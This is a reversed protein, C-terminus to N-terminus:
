KKKKFIFLDRATELLIRDKKSRKVDIGNWQQTSLPCSIHNIPTFGVDKFRIYYEPSLIPEERNTYDLYDSIIISVIGDKKVTQYSDSALKEVFGLFSDRDLASVSNDGYEEAKKKFYPPDFFILDCNKAREPFGSTIDWPEIDKRAELPNVDYARCRRGMILCADITSGGGAMPDVVLDGQKTYHYLVNMAIQGPINGAYKVGLRPDRDVFNWINYIQPIKEKDNRGFLNFREIDDKDKLIISWVLPEDLNHSSAIEEPTMGSQYEQDFLQTPFKGVVDNVTSHVLGLVNGIERQTWGLLSLRYIIADRSAKRSAVAPGILKSIWSETVNFDEALKKIIGTLM